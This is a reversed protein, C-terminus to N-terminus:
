NEYNMRALGPKKGKKTRETLVAKEAFHHYGCYFVASPRYYFVLYDMMEEMLKWNAKPNVAGAKTQNKSHKEM